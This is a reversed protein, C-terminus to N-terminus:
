PGSTWVQLLRLQVHSRGEGNSPKNSFPDLEFGGAGSTTAGNAEDMPMVKVSSVRLEDLTHAFFCVKRRCGVGDNCLQTRYRSPHM